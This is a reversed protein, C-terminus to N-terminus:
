SVFHPGFGGFAGGGFDDDFRKGGCGRGGWEDEDDEDFRHSRPAHTRSKLSLSWANVGILKTNTTRTTHLSHIYARAHIHTHLAVAYRYFPSSTRAYAYRNKKIQAARRAAAEEEALFRANDAEVERAVLGYSVYSAGVGGYEEPLTVGLLGLEGM